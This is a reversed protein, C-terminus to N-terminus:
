CNWTKNEKTNINITFLQGRKWNVLGGPSCTFMTKDGLTAPFGLFRNGPDRLARRLRDPPVGLYDAAVSIPVSDMALIDADTYKSM